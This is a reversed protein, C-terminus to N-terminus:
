VIREPIRPSVLDMVWVAVAILLVLVRAGVLPGGARPLAALRV